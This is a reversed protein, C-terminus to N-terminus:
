GVLKVLNLGFNPPGGPSPAVIDGAAILDKLFWGSMCRDGGSCPVIGSKISAKSDSSFYWGTIYFAAYGAVHYYTNSGNGTDCDTSPTITTPGSYKCDFIPMYIIDGAKPDTGLTTCPSSNGTTGQVWDDLVVNSSCSGSATSYFGGPASNGNWTPCTTPNNKTYVTQELSPWPNGAGYGYPTINADPGNPYTASGPTGNYGTQNKWDCYSMLVPFVKLSTPAAPGWAARACARVTTSVDGGAIASAVASSIANASAATKTSTRVEVFPLAAYAPDVTPCDVLAPSAPQSCPSLSTLSNTVLYSSACIEDIANKATGRTRTASALLRARLRDPNCTATTACAAAAARVTADAGNQVERREWLLQGVDVSIMATGLAVPVMIIAVFVAAAGRERRPRRLRSRVRRSRANCARRERLTPIPIASVAGLLTWAFPTSPKVTVKVDTGSM